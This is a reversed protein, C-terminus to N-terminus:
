LAINITIHIDASADISFCDKFKLNVLYVYVDHLVCEKVDYTKSSLSFCFTYLHFGGNCQLCVIVFCDNKMQHKGYTHAHSRIGGCPNKLYPKIFCITCVILVFKGLSKSRSINQMYESFKLKSNKM